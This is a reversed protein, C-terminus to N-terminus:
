YCNDVKLKSVKKNKYSIENIEIDYNDLKKLM